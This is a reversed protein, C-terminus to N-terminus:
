FFYGDLSNSNLHILTLVDFFTGYQQSFYEMSSSTYVHFTFIFLFFAGSLFLIFSNVYFHYHERSVVEIKSTGFNFNFSSFIVMEMTQLNLQSIDKCSNVHLTAM